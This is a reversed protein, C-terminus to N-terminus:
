TGAAIGRSIRNVWALRRVTVRPVSFLVDSRTRSPLIAAIPAPATAPGAVVVISAVPRQIVGPRISACECMGVSEWLSVPRITIDAAFVRSM